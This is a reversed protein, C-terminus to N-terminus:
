NQPHTCYHTYTHSEAGCYKSCDIEQSTTSQYYGRIALFGMELHWLTTLQVCFCVCEGFCPHVYVCMSARVCVCVCVCLRAYMCVFLCVHVHMFIFVCAYVFACVRTLCKIM